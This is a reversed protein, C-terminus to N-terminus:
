NTVRLKYNTIQLKYAIGWELSGSLLSKQAFAYSSKYISPYYAVVGKLSVLFQESIAYNLLCGVGVTCTITRFPVNQLWLLETDPAIIFGRRLTLMQLSAQFFPEVSWSKYAPFRYGVCLPISAYHISLQSAINTNNEVRKPNEVVRYTYTSDFVEIAVSDGGVYKYYTFLKSYRWYWLTDSFTINPDDSISQTRFQTEYGANAYGVGAGFLLKQTRYLAMISASHTLCMQESNHLEKKYDPSICTTTIPLTSAIGTFVGVDLISQPTRITPQPAQIVVKQTDIITRRETQVIKITDYVRITDYININHRNNEVVPPRKPQTIQPPVVVPNDKATIPQAESILIQNGIIKYSFQNGLVINLLQEFTYLKEVVTLPIKKDFIASNYTFYFNTQQEFDKLVETIAKNSCGYRFAITEVNHQSFANIILCICLITFATKKIM